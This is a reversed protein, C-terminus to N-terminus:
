ESVSCESCVMEGFQVWILADAAGMLVAVREAIQSRQLANYRDLV